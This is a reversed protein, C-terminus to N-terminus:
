WYDGAATRQGGLDSTLAAASVHIHLVDILDAGGVATARVVGRVTSRASAKTV